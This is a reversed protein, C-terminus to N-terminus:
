GWCCASAPESHPRALLWGPFRRARGFERLTVWHNPSGSASASHERAGKSVSFCGGIRTYPLVPLNDCDRARAPDASALVQQHIRSVDLLKRPSGDPRSSDFVIRGNYGVVRAVM